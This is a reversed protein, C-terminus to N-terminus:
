AASVSTSVRDVRTRVAAPPAADPRRRIFHHYV